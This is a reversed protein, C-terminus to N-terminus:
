ILYVRDRLENRDTDARPFHKALANGCLEIARIFGEAIRDDRIHVVLQDIAEQWQSQPVRASIGEDAIIRAYREALSVFILIGTRERTRAIGRIAFQETAARYAVARRVARPVLAVRIQPMCLVAVLALFVLLQLLLVRNVPLTTAAILVWPVALAVVAAMFVPLGTVDTSSRALVCVVEGSTRAEAYRIAASIRARDQESISM